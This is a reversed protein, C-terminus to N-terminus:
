GQEVLVYPVTTKKWKDGFFRKAQDTALAIFSEWQSPHITQCGESSTTNYGGKHINIGFMGTDDYPPVGDRTVSVDGARQCLALYKGRHLDFRHVFWIGTKLTAM